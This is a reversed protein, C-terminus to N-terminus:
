GSVAQKGLRALRKGKTRLARHISSTDVSTEHLLRILGDKEHVDAVTLENEPQQPPDHEKEGTTQTRHRLYIQTMERLGHQPFMCRFITTSHHTQLSVCQSM